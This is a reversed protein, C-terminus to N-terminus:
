IESILIYCCLKDKINLKGKGEGKDVKLRDVDEKGKENTSVKM